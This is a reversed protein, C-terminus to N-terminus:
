LNNIDKKRQGILRLCVRMVDSDLQRSCAVRHHTQGVTPLLLAHLPHDAPKGVCDQYDSIGESMYPSQEIIELMRGLAYFLNTM